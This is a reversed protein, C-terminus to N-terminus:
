NSDGTQKIFDKIESFVEDVSVAKLCRIDGWKCRFKRHAAPDYCPSCSLRSVVERKNETFPGTKKSDTPGFIGVVPVNQSVAVHMLSSDNTVIVRCRSILAATELISSGAYVLLGDKTLADRIHEEDPGCFFVIYTGHERM